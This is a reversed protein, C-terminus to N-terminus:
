GEEQLYSDVRERWERPIFCEGDRDAMLLYGYVEKLLADARKARERESLIASAQRADRGKPLRILTVSKVSLLLLAFAGFLLLCISFSMM